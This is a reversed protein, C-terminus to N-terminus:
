FFKKKLREKQECLDNIRLEKKPNILIKKTGNGRVSWVIGFIKTMVILHSIGFVVAIKHAEFIRSKVM